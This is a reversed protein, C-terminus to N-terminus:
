SKAPILPRIHLNAHGQEYATMGANVQRWVNAEVDVFEQDWLPTDPNYAVWRTTVTMPTDDPVEIDANGLPVYGLQHHLAKSARNRAAITAEVKPIGLENFAIHLVGHMANLAVHQRRAAPDFVYISSCTRGRERLTAKRKDLGAIGVTQMVGDDGVAANINWTAREWFSDSEGLDAACAVGLFDYAIQEADMSGEPPPYLGASELAEPDFTRLEVAPYSTNRPQVFLEIM